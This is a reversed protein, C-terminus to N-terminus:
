GTERAIPRRPRFADHRSKSPKLAVRV